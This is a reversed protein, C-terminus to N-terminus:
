RPDLRFQMPGLFGGQDRDYHYKKDYLSVVLKAELPDTVRVALREYIQDGVRVRVRPDAILNKVWTNTHSGATIWLHDAQAVCWVNVSYPDDPATELQIKQVADTFSWDTVPAAVLTGDLRGGPIWSLPGGCGSLALAAAAALLLTRM